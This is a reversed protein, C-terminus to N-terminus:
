SLLKKLKHYGPVGVLAAAIAADRWPQFAMAQRYRNQGHQMLDALDGHGAERIQNRMHTLLDQRTLGIDRGFERESFFPNRTFGRQRRGLDSQLSFLDNYNGRRARDMMRRNAATNRLFQNNVIDQEIEPPLGIRGMGREHLGHQVENLARAGAGGTIPIDSLAAFLRNAFPISAIGAPIGRILEDGPKHGKAGLAEAYNYEKPVVSEPFRFSPSDKPAIDKKVLYDRVNGPASLVGHGLNAFGAGLNQAFRPRDNVAQKGAGYAEGPLAALGSPIGYIAQLAKGIADTAVGSFGKSEEPEFSQSSDFPSPTVASWESNSQPTLYNTGPKENKVVEWDSM